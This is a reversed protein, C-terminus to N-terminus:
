EFGLTSGVQNFIAVFFIWSRLLLSCVCTKRLGSFHFNRTNSFQRGPWGLIGQFYKRPLGFGFDVLFIGVSVSFFRRSNLPGQRRESLFSLAVWCSWKEAPRAVQFDVLAGGAKGDSQFIFRSWLLSLGSRRCSITSFFSM